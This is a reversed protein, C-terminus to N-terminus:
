WRAVLKPAFPSGDPKTRFVINVQINKYVSRYHGVPEFDTGCKSCCVTIDLINRCFCFGFYINVPYAKCM